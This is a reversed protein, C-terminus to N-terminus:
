LNPAIETRFLMDDTRSAKLMSELSTYKTGNFYCGPRNGLVIPNPLEIPSGDFECVKFKREPDWRFAKIKAYHTIASVPAGRYIAIYKLEQEREEKVRCPYWCPPEAEGMFTEEFGRKKSSFIVTDFQREHAQAIEAQVDISHEELLYKESEDLFKRVAEEILSTRSFSRSESIRAFAELVRDLREIAMDDLYVAIQKKAAKNTKLLNSFYSASYGDKM